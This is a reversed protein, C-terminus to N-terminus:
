KEPASAESDVGPIPVDFVVVPNTPNYKFNCTSANVFVTQGDTTVGAGEHIHGFVHYQPKVRCQVTNLLDLCGARGGSPHLLDGHGLPPGHTLLVDCDTPIKSWVERCEQGRCINFAWDCFEPQYPTGYLQIGQIECGANELYVCNQLLSRVHEPEYKNRKHFRDAARNEYYEPEFTVDHNGAIVIKHTHPLSLLWESFDQVQEAEGTNTFDGTHVLVDGPPIQEAIDRHLGHTDSICVFRLYGPRCPTAPDMPEVPEVQSSSNLFTWALTPDLAMDELSKVHEFADSPAMIRPPQGWETAVTIRPPLGEPCAKEAPWKTGADTPRAM